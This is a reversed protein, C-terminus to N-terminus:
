LNLRKIKHTWNIMDVIKNKHGIVYICIIYLKERANFIKSKWDDFDSDCM